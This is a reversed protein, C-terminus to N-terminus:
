RPMPACSLAPTQTSLRYLLAEKWLGEKTTTGVDFCPDPLPTLAEAVTAAGYTDRYVALLAAAGDTRRGRYRVGTHCYAKDVVVWTARPAQQAARQVYWSRLVFRAGGRHFPLAACDPCILDGGTYSCGCWLCWDTM